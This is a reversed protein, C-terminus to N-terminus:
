TIFEPQILNKQVKEAIGHLKRFWATHHADADHLFPIRHIAAGRIFELDLVRPDTHALLKHLM